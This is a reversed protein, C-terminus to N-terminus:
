RDQKGKRGRYRDIWDELYLVAVSLLVGIVIEQWTNPQEFLWGWM